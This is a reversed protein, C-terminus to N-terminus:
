NPLLLGNTSFFSNAGFVQEGTPSKVPRTVVPKARQRSPVLDPPVKAWPDRQRGITEGAEFLKTQYDRDFAEAPRYPFTVPISLYNFDAGDDRATRFIRYIQDGTQNLLLTAIARGAIPLTKQETAAHTPAQKGNEILYLKRIPKNTYLPDFARMPVNLPSVFIQRTTGGDVHLEDYAAGAARVQIRVPPFAGPIAASALLVDHFLQESGPTRSEAIAGMNWVVPRQADLNTTLVMLIRGRRYEAAIRDLVDRNLQEAIVEALPATDVLSDGGLLGPLGSSRILDTTKYTTWLTRLTDDYDPGLFAFPAILAGASVGTVIEFEPRRGTASWGNLVGAAFAGNPGGGSLALTEIVPRGGVRQATAGIPPLDPFLQKLEAIPEDPVVDGWSRVGSIDPVIARDALETPVPNRVGIMSACGSVVLATVLVVSIRWAM